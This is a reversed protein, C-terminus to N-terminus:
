QHVRGQRDRVTEEGLHDDTLGQHIWLGVERAEPHHRQLVELFCNAPGSFTRQLIASALIGLQPEVNYRGLQM